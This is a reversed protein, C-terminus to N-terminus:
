VPGRVVNSHRRAPRLFTNVAGPITFTMQREFDSRCGRRSLSSQQIFIETPPSFFLLLSQTSQLTKFLSFPM